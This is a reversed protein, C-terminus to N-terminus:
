DKVEQPRVLEYHLYMVGSRFKRSDLLRLPIRTAQKPLFPKGGGLVVPHIFIGFEDILNLHLFTEALEAGGLGINKGPRAKLDTIFTSIDEKVLQCGADVKDLSNFFVYKTAERWIEAYERVYAPVSQDHYADPWFPVMTEYLKRGYLFTNAERALQNAFTHFEEDVIGWDISGDPAEMYGDLSISISYIIKRM